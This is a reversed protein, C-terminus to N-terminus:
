FGYKLIRPVRWPTFWVTSLSFHTAGAQQYATLEKPSYIGGGAIIRGPYKKAFREVLPLNIDFLQRGSIGGTVTPLTNSCHLWDAGANMAMAAIDDVMGTPSLKAIITHRQCFARLARRPISYEHVNPCGLNLELTMGPPMFSLMQEWDGKELGVLSYIYDDDLTVNRIGRNRLGVQNIWGGEVRRISRLSHRLLGPRREWTFSGLVRTCGKHHLYNGFPPSILFREM